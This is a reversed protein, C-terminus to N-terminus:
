LIGKGVDTYRDNDNKNENEDKKFVRKCFSNWIKMNLDEINFQEIFLKLKDESLNSFLIYEFLISCERDKGYMELVFDLLSDEDNIKLSKSEIIM